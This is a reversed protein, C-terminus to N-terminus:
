PSASVPLSHRQRSVRKGNLFVDFVYSASSGDPSVTVTLVAWRVPGLQVQVRSTQGAALYTAGVGRIEDDPGDSVSVRCEFQGAHDRRPKVRVLISTKEPGVVSPAASATCPAGFLTSLLTLLVLGCAVSRVLSGRRTGSSPKDM